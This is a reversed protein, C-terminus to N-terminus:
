DEMEIFTLLSELSRKKPNDMYTYYSSLGKYMKARMKDSWPIVSNHYAWKWALAEYYIVDTVFPVKGLIKYSKPITFHHGIEHLITTYELEDIDNTLPFNVMVLSKNSYYAGTPSYKMQGWAIYPYYQITLGAQSLLKEIHENLTM